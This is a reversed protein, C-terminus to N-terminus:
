EALGLWRPRVVEGEGEPGPIGQCKESSVLGARSYQCVMRSEGILSPAQAEACVGQLRDCPRGSPRSIRQRRQSASLGSPIFNQM